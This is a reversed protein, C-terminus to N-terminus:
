GAFISYRISNKGTNKVSYMMDDARKLLEDSTQPMNIRVCTLVGISFTVSWENKSMEDLLSTQIRQIAAQAATQDTEPLLFAFEDGGLRAVVDMKRLQSRAQRVITWLVKDGMSHGFRDNVSKFNDLDLCAITFPRKNRQIREMEMLLLESFFRGNVAGTLNDIRALEKEHELAIKLASLLYTVIIFFGLRIITNWAFIVPSTYTHGTAVDAVLWTIASAISTAIGFRRSAFWTLLCVPFLYFLSFSIEYGTLYDIIGIGLICAIGILIWFLHSRKELYVLHNSNEPMARARPSWDNELLLRDQVSVLINSGARRM